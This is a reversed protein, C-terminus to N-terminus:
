WYLHPKRYSNGSERGHGWASLKVNKHLVSRDGISITGNKKLLIVGKGMRLTKGCTQFQHRRLIGRILKLAIDTYESFTRGMGLAEKRIKRIKDYKLSM